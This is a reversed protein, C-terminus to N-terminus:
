RVRSALARFFGIRNVWQNHDNFNLDLARMAAFDNDGTSISRFATVDGNFIALDTARWHIQMHRTFWADNLIDVGGGGSEGHM